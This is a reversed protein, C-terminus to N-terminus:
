RSTGAASKHLLVALKLPTRLHFRPLGVEDDEFDESARLHLNGFSSIVIKLLDM